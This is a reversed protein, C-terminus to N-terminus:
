LMNLGLVGPRAQECLVLCVAVGLDGTMLSYRGHGVESRRKRVQELAHMALSRARELWLEEGTLAFLQLLALASGATGHCVTPGKALPGASWTLEGGAVLLELTEDDQNAAAACGLIMGPAGHCWQVRFGAYEMGVVPRWNAMDGERVATSALLARSTVLVCERQTEDLLSAGLLLPEFNGAAGHGAGVMWRPKGYLDVLWMDCGVPGPELAALERAAGERFLEVIRQDNPHHNHLALLGLLANGAGTLPDHTPNEMASQIEAIATDPPGGSITALAAEFGSRGLMWSAPGAEFTPNADHTDRMQQYLHGTGDPVATGINRALWHLALAVGSAGFYLCTAHAFAPEDGAVDDPHFPWLAHQGRAIADEAIEIAGERASASSWTTTTLPEHREPEYLQQAAAVSEAPTTM